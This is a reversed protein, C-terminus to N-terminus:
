VMSTVRDQGAAIGNLYHYDTEFHKTRKHFAPNETLYISSLNDGFLGPTVPLSIGLEKLLISIWAMESATESLSRYEAETSSKSVTPQKKSSWSILNQGLFTCFGGTSRRTAPCGAWDNDSYSRLTCDTDRVLSVGMAVTGKVYRLIRKLNTFDSRSPAHMKQCVYNVAFQIDPRTLTLYQLKGALKRFFQPNCFPTDQDPVNNLQLPLPTNIPSGNEMGAAGLLDVAYQEQSLFLGEDHFTAQIGLFYHLKGLDKMRFESNLQDLLKTLIQSNNGTIAMDDVYLLLMIINSEKNYIFLSPDKVSCVFGFEIFFDSFRNFWARPSQKLGYLSKHLHCVHNPKSKDVFGAPQKMYVTELLNGHLFTNKVDMQKVEWKMITALHLVIRVTATRVVPSYTELYDVGEDQNNRHM